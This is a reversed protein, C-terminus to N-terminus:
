LVDQTFFDRFKISGHVQACLYFKVAIFTDSETGIELM